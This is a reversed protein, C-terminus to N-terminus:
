LPYMEKGDLYVDFDHIGEYFTPGSIRGRRYVPRFELIDTKGEPVTIDIEKQFKEETLGLYIKYTGPRLMIKKELFYKMGEGGEPNRKGDITRQQTDPTGHAMWIVGQGGINFVFPYEPKGHLAKKTEFLFYGEKPTKLSARIIIVAAGPEPNADQLEKFVTGQEDSKMRIHEKVEANTACGGLLLLLVIIFTSIVTQKM